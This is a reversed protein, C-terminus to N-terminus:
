IRNCSCGKEECKCWLNIRKVRIEWDRSFGAASVSLPLKPPFLIQLHTKATELESLRETRIQVEVSLMWSSRNCSLCVSLRPLSTFLLVFFFHRDSVESLKEEGLHDVDWGDRRRCSRDWCNSWTILELTNNKRNWVTTLWVDEPKSQQHSLFLNKKSIKVKVQSSFQSPSKGAIM